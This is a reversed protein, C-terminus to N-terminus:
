PQSIILVILRYDFCLPATQPVASLILPAKYVGIRSMKLVNCFCVFWVFVVLVSHTCLCFVNCIETDFFLDGCVIRLYLTFLSIVLM